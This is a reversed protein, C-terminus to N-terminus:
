TVTRQEDTIEGVFVYGADALSSAPSYCGVIEVEETASPNRFWHTVGAPVFVATGSGVEHEEDEAGAAGRGRIVYLAEEANPHYHRAHAAGPPFITRWLCVSESGANDGRVLFRIDMEVWGAEAAVDAPALESVHIQFHNSRRSM